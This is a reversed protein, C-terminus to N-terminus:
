QLCWFTLFWMEKLGKCRSITSELCDTAWTDSTNAQSTSSSLRAVSEWLQFILYWVSCSEIARAFEHPNQRSYITEQIYFKGMNEYEWNTELSCFQIFFFPWNTSNRLTFVIIYSFYKTGVPCLSLNICQSVEGSTIQVPSPKPMSTFSSSVHFYDKSLLELSCSSYIYIYIYVHM